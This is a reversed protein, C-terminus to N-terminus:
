GTFALVAQRWENPRDRHLNHGGDLEVFADSLERARSRDDGRLVTADVVENVGPADPAALVLTPSAVSEPSLAPWGAGARVSAAVEEVVCRALDGVVTRRGEEAWSPKAARLRTCSQEVDRRAAAVERELVQAAASWDLSTPGCPEELVVLEAPHRQLLSLAVAAGFGHGLVLALPQDSLEADVWAAALEPTLTAEVRPSAGHAPLDPAKVRWGAAALAPGVQWWTSASSGIEHLLLARRGGQGWSRWRLFPRPTM